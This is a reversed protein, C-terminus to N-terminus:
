SDLGWVEALMRLMEEKDLEEGCHPCRLVGKRGAAPPRPRAPTSADQAAPAPPEPRMWAPLNALDVPPPAPHGAGVGTGSGQSALWEAFSMPPGGGEEEGAQLLDSLSFSEAPPPAAESAPPAAPPPPPPEPDMYFPPVQEFSATFPDTSQPGAPPVAPLDPPPVPAGAFPAAPAKQSAPTTPPVFQQDAPPPAPRAAPNLSEATLAELDVGATLWDADSPGAADPASAAPPPATRPAMGPLLVDPPPTASRGTDQADNLLADLNGGDGLLWDTESLGPAPEPAPPVAPAPTPLPSTIPRRPAAPPAAPPPLPATGPRPAGAVASRADPAGPSDAPAPSPGPVPPRAIEVAAPGPPQAATEAEVGFVKGLGVVRADPSLITIQVGQRRMVGKLAQFDEMQHLIRVGRPVWLLVPEAPGSGARATIKTLLSDITEDPLVPIIDAM